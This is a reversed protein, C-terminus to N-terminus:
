KRPTAAMQDLLGLTKLIEPTPEDVALMEHCAACDQTISSQDSSTHAGDHCRFCGPFDTHGLNNPYTGWTVKLEPFVNRGYIAALTQGAREIEASRNRAIESFSTRYYARIAEPIRAAAENSSEYQAKLVEVGQKRIFPLTIPLEGAAMAQQVAREPLEFTHTPRNHCDTCQMEYKPLGNADKGASETSTYVRSIGRKTDRYQIWPISQRKADSAAFSLSIGAGFHAGHIGGAGHGGIKMMLVTRTITNGEDEAFNSIVRLRSGSFKGPWHCRECTENASVLRNTEIASPIPRPYRDFAVEMLQRTGATKAELWGMAGPAVHCEVCRVRSHPSDRHATFQPKMVHCSQGCFAETEMYEVGEYTLHAGIVLNLVTTPILFMALRRFAGKRDNIASLDRRVRRRAFYMGLPILILGAVFVVPLVVFLVIGIYPNSASGRVEHALVLLWLIGATTVLVTGLLSLWHSALLVVFPWKERSIM